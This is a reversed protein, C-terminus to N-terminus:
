FPGPAAREPWAGLELARLDPVHYGEYIPVGQDAVWRDYASVADKYWPVYSDKSRARTTEM